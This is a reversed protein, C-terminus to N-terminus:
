HHLRIQHFFLKVAWKDTLINFYTTQLLELIPMRLNFTLGKALNDHRPEHQPICKSLLECFFKCAVLLKMAVRRRQQIEAASRRLTQTCQGEAAEGDKRYKIENHTGKLATKHPRVETLSLGSIKIRLAPSTDFLQQITYSVLSCKVLPNEFSKYVKRMCEM